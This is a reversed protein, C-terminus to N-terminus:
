DILTSNGFILKQGECQNNTGLFQSEIIFDTGKHSVDTIERIPVLAYGKNGVCHVVNSKNLQDRLYDKIGQVSSHIKIQQEPM